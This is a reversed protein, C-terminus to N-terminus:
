KEKQTSRLGSSSREVVVETLVGGDTHRFGLLRVVEIRLILQAGSEIEISVKSVPRSFPYDTLRAMAIQVQWEYGFPNMRVIWLRFENRDEAIRNLSRNRVPPM